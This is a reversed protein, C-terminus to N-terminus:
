IKELLSRVLGALSQGKGAHVRVARRRHMHLSQLDGIAQAACLVSFGYPAGPIPIDAEPEATFQAFLGNGAGGKHLQGTSHLFRPGYGLTTPLRREELLRRRLEGFARRLEPTEDAFAM